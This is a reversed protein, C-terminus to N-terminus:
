GPLVDPVAKGQLLGFKMQYDAPMDPWCIVVNDPLGEVIPLVYKPNLQGNGVGPMPLYYTVSPDLNAVTRLVEASKEILSTRAAAQWHYKVQFAGIRYLPLIMLLYEDLNGIHAGFIMDIGPRADRLARANGRGMVLSGDNKVMSNGTFLFVEKPGPEKRYDIRNLTLKM